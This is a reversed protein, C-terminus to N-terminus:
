PRHLAPKLMAFQVDFPLTAFMRRALSGIVAHIPKQVKVIKGDTVMTIQRAIEESRIYKFLESAIQAEVWKSPEKDSERSCDVWDCFLGALLRAKPGYDFPEHDSRSVGEANFVLLLALIVAPYYARELPEERKSRLYQGIEGIIENAEDFNALVLAQIMNVLYRENGNVGDDDVPMAYGLVIHVRNGAPMHGMIALLRHNHAEAAINKQTVSTLELVLQSNTIPM